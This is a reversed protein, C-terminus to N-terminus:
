QENLPAYDTKFNIQVRGFIQVQSGSVDRQSANATSVSMRNYATSASANVWNSLIRGTSASARVNFDSRTFNSTASESVSSGTTNFTLRTEIVGSEVVLRLVGMNVMQKLLSYRDASIRTAVANVIAAHAAADVTQGATLTPPAQSAGEVPLAQTLAQAEVATLEKGELTVEGDEDAELLRPSIGGLWKMIEQGSIEDRTETLYEQLTKGTARLLETYSEMQRLNASVLADFVDTVLTTTFETFGIEGLRTAQDVAVETGNPM